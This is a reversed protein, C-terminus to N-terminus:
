PTGGPTQSASVLRLRHAVDAALRDPPDIASAFVQIDADWLDPLAATMPSITTLSRLTGNAESVKLRSEKSGSEPRYPSFHHRIILVGDDALEDTVIRWRDIASSDNRSPLVENFELLDGPFEGRRKWLSKPGPTRWSVLDLWAQQPASHRGQVASARIHGMMWGDDYGRFRDLLDPAETHLKSSTDGAVREIDALFQMLPASDELVFTPRLVLRIAQQLAAAIQSVKHHFPGWAYARYRALLFSEAASVGQPLVATELANRDTHPRVVTLHDVLRELDYSAFEFGYTRADRLLYDCRDVDIEGSMLSHLWWWLADVDLGPDAAVALGPDPPPDALLIREAISFTTRALDAEARDPVGDFIKRVLTRAMRYGIREHIALEGQGTLAPFRKEAAERHEEFLRGLAYEFDHSFPLHGLDHVLGALRLGQELLLASARAEDSVSAATRLGDDTLVRVVDEPRPSFGGAAQSVADGMLTEIQERLSADANELATSLFRSSLHM